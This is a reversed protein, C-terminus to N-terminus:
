HQSGRLDPSIQPSRPLDPSIHSSLRPLLSDIALSQRVPLDCELWDDRSCLCRRTQEYSMHSSSWGMTEEGGEHAQYENLLTLLRVAGPRPEFAYDSFRRGLAECFEYSLAQDCSSTHISLHSSACHM